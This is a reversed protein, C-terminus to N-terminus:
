SKDIANIQPKIINEYCTPCVGHSFKASSHRGIYSEVEQWYNKDDRIRKCYMCIPLLGKLEKVEAIAHELEVIRNALELQLTVLRRGANLRAKLEENVFPKVVYDDAGAAFGEVINETGGLSTLLLLHLPRATKARAQQCVEIGTLGPMMWDVVALHVDNDSLLVRLAEEGDSATVPQFGCQKAFAGLLMRTTPEDDALLIKMRKGM